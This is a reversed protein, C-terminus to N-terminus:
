CNLMIFKGALYECISAKTKTTDIAIVMSGIEDFNSFYLKKEKAVKALTFLRKIRNKVFGYLPVIITTM